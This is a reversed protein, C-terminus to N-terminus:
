NIIFYAGCIKNSLRLTFYTQLNFNNAKLHPVFRILHLKVEKPLKVSIEIDMIKGIGSISKVDEM